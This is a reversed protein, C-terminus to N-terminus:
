SNTGASGKLDALIARFKERRQELMDEDGAFDIFYDLQWRWNRRHRSVRISSETSETESPALAPDSYSSCASSSPCLPMGTLGGKRDVSFYGREVLVSKPFVFYGVVNDKAEDLLSFVILDINDSSDFPVPVGFFNHTLAVDYRGTRAHRTAVRHITNLGDLEVNCISNSRCFSMGIHSPDALDVRLQRLATQSIQNKQGLFSVEIWEDFYRRPGEEYARGFHASFEEARIQYGDYKGRGGEPAIAVHSGHALTISSDFIVAPLFHLVDHVRDLCVTWCGTNKARAVHAFNVRKVVQNRQLVSQSTRIHLGAWTKEKDIEAARPRFLVGVTSHRPMLLFEFQPAYLRALEIIKDVGDIHVGIKDIGARTSSDTARIGLEHERRQGPSLTGFWDYYGNFESKYVQHPNFPIFSPRNAGQRQWQRVSRVGSQRAWQRAEEFPLFRQTSATSSFLRRGFLPPRRFILSM